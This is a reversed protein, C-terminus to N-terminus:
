WPIPRYHRKPISVTKHLAKSFSHHWLEQQLHHPMNAACDKEDL